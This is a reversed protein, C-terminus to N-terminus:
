WTKNLKEATKPQINETQITLDGPLNGTIVVSQYNEPRHKHHDAVTHHIILAAPDMHHTAHFHGPHHQNHRNWFLTMDNHLAHMQQLTLKAMPTGYNLLERVHQRTETEIRSRERIGQLQRELATLPVSDFGEEKIVGNDIPGVVQPYLFRNNISHLSRLSIRSNWFQTLFCCFKLLTM